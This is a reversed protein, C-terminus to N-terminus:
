LGEPLMLVEEPRIFVMIGRAHPTIVEWDNLRLGQGQVEQGDQHRRHRVRGGQGGGGGGRLGRGLGCVGQDRPGAASM